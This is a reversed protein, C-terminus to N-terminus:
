NKPNDALAVILDLAAGTLSVAEWEKPLNLKAMKACIEKLREQEPCASELLEGIMSNLMDDQSNKLKTCEPEFDKIVKIKYNAASCCAGHFRDEWKMSTNKALMQIASILERESAVMLPKKGARVVCQSVKVFEITKPDDLNACLKKSHRSRAGSFSNLSRRAIPSLCKAYTKLCKLGDGIRDCSARMETTTNPYQNSQSTYSYTSLSSCRDIIQLHNTCNQDSKPKKSTITAGNASCSFRKRGTSPIM